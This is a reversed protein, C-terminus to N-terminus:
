EMHFRMAAIRGDAQRDVTWHMHYRGTALRYHRRDGADEILEMNAVGLDSESEAILQDFWKDSWLRWCEESFAESTASRRAIAKILMADRSTLAPKSDAVPEHPAVAGDFFGAVKHAIRAVQASDINALVAVSLRQDPFRALEARFGDWTGGHRIKRHGRIESNQWGLGYGNIAPRGDSTLTPEFMAAITESRFVRPRDLEIFWRAIDRPSFYLGGDGTRLMTPATWHSNRLAGSHRSYGSARNLVIDHSSAERASAMGAPAFLRERLSAYYPKGTIRRVVLSAVIYSINSYLYSEGPAFALPSMSALALLQEDSHDQWLNVPVVNNEIPAPAFVDAFNGFGSTMSLLHRITMDAWSRPVETLYRDVPHDIDLLGDQLLILIAAATFMKGTSGSHFITDATAAVRHEINALGYGGLHLIEGDRVITVGLGPIEHAEIEAHLYRELEAASGPEKMVDM